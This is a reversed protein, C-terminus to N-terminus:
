NRGPGAKGEGASNFKGINSFFQQFANMERGPAVTKKKVMEVDKASKEDVNEVNELLGENNFTVELVKRSEVKPDFFATTSTKEGMYFWKNGDFPDITTPTGIKSQVEEKTSVHLQLSKLRDDEVFNGRTAQVPACAATLGTLLTTIIMMKRPM